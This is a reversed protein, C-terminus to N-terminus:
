FKIPFDINVWYMTHFIVQGKTNVELAPAPAKVLNLFKLIPKWGNRKVPIKEFDIDPSILFKRYRPINTHNHFLGNKDTWTNNFGGYMDGAGYGVAINLWRARKQKPIFSATNVSIWYTAGNYDKILRQLGTGYLEDARAKLHADPYDVKHISYKLRIRQENWFYNQTTSLAAGLTNAGIDSWSAGWKSSFGDFVEITGQAIFASLGGYIAAKKKPVGSWVLVDRALNSQFYATYTHGCKDIQQWEKSDDFSHFKSKPYDKYWAYNLGVLVAGYAAAETGIVTAFRKKNFTDSPTFFSGQASLIQLNFILFNLFLIKKM